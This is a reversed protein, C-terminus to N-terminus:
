RRGVWMAWRSVSKATVQVREWGWVEASFVGKVPNRLMVLIKAHPTVAAIRRAVFPLCAHVPCADFCMWRDVGQVAEAWWRHLVTPFFTRYM